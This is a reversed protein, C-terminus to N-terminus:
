RLLMLKLDNVNSGTAGTSIVDGLRILADTTQHRDLASGIDVALSSARRNTANDCLGGAFETPGDTGDTDAGLVVAEYGPPLRQAAALAFEQNPGGLGGFANMTVITEGGGIVACPLGTPRGHLAIERAIAAFNHGLAQSEGDFSSSLVVVRYGLEGAAKRAADTASAASLLLITNEAPWPLRKPTEVVPGGPQLFAKLPASVRDWLSYKDLTARADDITSTDAVTPDTIYDLADGIVDSVTLNVLQVGPAFALALRGGGVASVHKRVANIEFIDAGCTLLLKTLSQLDDLALGACPLTMLSSSGGTIGCIVIDGHRPLAARTLMERAAAVSAASPIPHSAHRVEIRRLAGSQGEKCVVLGGHLREGLRDEVGRAIPFSAKGVGLFWIKTTSFLPLRLDGIILLDEDIALKRRCWELPNVDDLVRDLIRLADRRLEVPGHDLLSAGNKVYQFEDRPSGAKGAFRV